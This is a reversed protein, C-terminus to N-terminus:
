PVTSNSWHRINLPNNAISGYGEKIVKELRNEM